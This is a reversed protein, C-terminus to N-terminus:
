PVTCNKKVRAVAAELAEAKAFAMGMKRPEMDHHSFRDHDM